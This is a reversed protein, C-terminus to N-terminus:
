EEGPIFWIDRTIHGVGEVGHDGVQVRCSKGRIDDFDTVDFVQLLKYVWHGCYNGTDKWRAPTYLQWGGFSQLVGGYDLRVSITLIGHDELGLFVDDVTANKIM